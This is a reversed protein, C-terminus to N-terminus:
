FVVVVFLYNKRAVSGVSPAAGYENTPGTTAQEKYAILFFASVCSGFTMAAYESSRQSSSERQVVVYIFRISFM